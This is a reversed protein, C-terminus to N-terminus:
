DVEGAFGRAIGEMLSFIVKDLTLFILTKKPVKTGLASFCYDIRIRSCRSCWRIWHKLSLLSAPLSEQM